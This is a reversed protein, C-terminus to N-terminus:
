VPDSRDIRGAGQDYGGSSAMPPLIQVRVFLITMRDSMAVQLAAQM